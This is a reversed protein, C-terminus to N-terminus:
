CTTQLCRAGSTHSAPGAVGCRTQMCARVCLVCIYVNIGIWGGGVWEGMRGGVWRFACGCVCAVMWVCMWVCAVVWVCAGVRVWVCECARVCARVCQGRAPCAGWGLGRPPAHTGTHGTGAPRAAPHPPHPACPCPAGPRAGCATSTCPAPPDSTHAHTHM